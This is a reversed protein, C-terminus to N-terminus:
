LSDESEQATTGEEDCTPCKEDVMESGCTPCTEEMRNIIISISLYYLLYIDFDLYATLPKYL